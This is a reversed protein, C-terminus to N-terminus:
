EEWPNNNNRYSRRYSQWFVFGRDSQNFFALATQVSRESRQYKRALREVAEDYGIGSKQMQRFDRGIEFWKPPYRNPKRGRAGSRRKAGLMEAVVDAFPRPYFGSQLHDIAIRKADDMRGEDLANRVDIEVECLEFPIEPM